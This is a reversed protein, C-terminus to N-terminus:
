ALTCRIVGLQAREVSPTLNMLWVTRICGNFECEEVSADSDDDQQHVIVEVDKEEVDEIHVEM